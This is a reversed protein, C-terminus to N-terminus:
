FAAAGQGEGVCADAGSGFGVIACVSTSDIYSGGVGVGIGLCATTGMGIGKTGGAIQSVEDENLERDETSIIAVYEKFEEFTASIGYEKALPVLVAEFVAQETQEGTYSEVANKLKKQFTADSKLLEEFKKLGENM